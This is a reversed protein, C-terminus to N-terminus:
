KKKHFMEIKLDTKTILVETKNNKILVQIM